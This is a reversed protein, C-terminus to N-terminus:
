AAELEARQVAIMKNLQEIRAAKNADWQALAEAHLRTNQENVAAVFDLLEQYAAAKQEQTLDAPLEAEAEPAAVLPEPAVPGLDAHIATIEAEYQEIFWAQPGIGTGHPLTMDAEWASRFTRDDPVDAADIIRFPKGAPVDKRAIEEIGLQEIAEPAPIIVAVGGEDTQYIIRQTM